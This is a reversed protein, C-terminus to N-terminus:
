MSTAKWLAWLVKRPFKRQLICANFRGTLKTSIISFGFIRSSAGGTNEPRRKLRLIFERALPVLGRNRPLVTKRRRCPAARESKQDPSTVDDFKLNKDCVLDSGRYSRDIMPEKGRHDLDTQDSQERYRTPKKTRLSLSSNGSLVSLTRPDHWCITHELM